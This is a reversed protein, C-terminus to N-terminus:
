AGVPAPGDPARVAEPDDPADPADPSDPGDPASPDSRGDPGDPGDPGGVEDPGHRRRGLSTRIELASGVGAFYSEHEQSLADFLSALTAKTIELAHRKKERPSQSGHIITILELEWEGLVRSLFVNQGRYTGWNERWGFFTGLATCVAIVVSFTAQLAVANQTQPYLFLLPFTVGLVVEVCGFLRFWFGFGRALRRSRHHHTVLFRRVIRDCEPFQM